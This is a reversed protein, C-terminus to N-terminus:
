HHRRPRRKVKVTRSTGTAHAGGDTPAVVVRYAVRHRRRKVTFRYGSRNESLARLKRSRLRIWAGHSRRQLQARGGPQAPVVIGKLRVKSRRGRKSATVHLRSTATVVPSAVVTATRTVVRFQTTVYLVPVFFRYRGDGKAGQIPGVQAFPGAFPFDQRELALAVGGVHTGSVVGSVAVYYGWRVNARDLAITIGTVLRNTRFTRDVGRAVGAANTAVARYHYITYPALGGIAFSAAVGADGSGIQREGTTAGYSATQGYEFRVTTAAANPDVTATLTASQPGIGSTRQRSITPPQPQPPTHFTRDVGRSTGLTNSAVLRYHYVTNGTLGALGALVAIAGDGSGANRTPTALGYTDTTGYEFHYTTASGNPDVTGTVTASTPAVDHATGTVAVPAGLAQAPAAVALALLASLALTALPATRV